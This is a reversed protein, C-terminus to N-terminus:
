KGYNFRKWIPSSRYAQISATPVILTINEVTTGKFAKDGTNPVTTADCRIEKLNTCSDFAHDGIVKITSPLHVRKLGTCSDFASMQIETVGEPIVVSVVKEYMAFAVMEIEKVQIVNGRYKITSPIVIDGSYEPYGEPAYSVWCTNNHLSITYWIGDVNAKIAQAQALLPMLAFLLILFFKRM